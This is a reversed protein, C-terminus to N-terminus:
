RTKWPRRLASLSAGSSYAGACPHAPVPKFSLIINISENSDRGQLTSLCPIEAWGSRNQAAVHWPFGVSVIQFDSDAQRTSVAYDPLDPEKYTLDLRVQPFCGMDHQNTSSSVVSHPWGYWRHSMDAFLLVVPVDATPTPATSFSCAPGRWPYPISKPVLPVTWLCCLRMYFSATVLDGSVM